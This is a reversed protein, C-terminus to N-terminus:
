HLFIDVVIGILGLNERLSAKLTCHHEILTLTYIRYRKDKDQEDGVATDQMKGINSCHQMDNHVNVVNHLQTFVAHM